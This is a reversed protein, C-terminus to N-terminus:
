DGINVLVLLAGQGGWELPAQHFALVHPHQMLWGPVRQRLVGSGLGHIVNCCHIHEAMCQNLATALDRQAQVQTLGHLDVVLDPSFDGRRLQKSLYPNAGPATYKMIGEPLAPEYGSSFPSSAQERQFQTAARRATLKGLAQNPVKQPARNNDKPLNRVGRVAQRFLAREADSLKNDPM